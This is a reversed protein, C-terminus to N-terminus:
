GVDGGLGVVAHGGGDGFTRPPRHVELESRWGVGAGLGERLELGHHFGNLLASRLGLSSLMSLSSAPRESLLAALKEMSQAWGQTQRTAPHKSGTPPGVMPGALRSRDLVCVHTRFFCRLY